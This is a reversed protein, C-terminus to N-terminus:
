FFEDATLLMVGITCLLNLVSIYILQLRLRRGLDVMELWKAVWETPLGLLLLSISTILVTGFLTSGSTYIPRRHPWGINLAVATWIFQMNVFLFMGTVLPAESILSGRGTSSRLSSRPIAPLVWYFIFLQFVVQIGAILLTPLMVNRDCISRPPRKRSFRQSADLRGMLVGLPLVLFLDVYLYQGDSVIGGVSYLLLVSTFQVVSYMFMYQFAALSAAASARGQRIVEFVGAISPAQSTFSASLCATEHSGPSRGEIKSQESNKRKPSKHSFVDGDVVVVEQLEKRKGINQAPNPIRSSIAVGTDAERLAGVDNAGDGCMLVNRRLQERVMRILNRKQDPSMRAYVVGRRLILDRLKEDKDLLELVDGTVVLLLPSTLHTGGSDLRFVEDRSYFSVHDSIRGGISVFEFMPGDGHVNDRKYEMQDEFGVTVARVQIVTTSYKRSLIGSSQAVSVATMAHDGTVVRIDFFESSETLVALTDPKLPNELIMLGLFTLGREIDSRSMSLATAGPDNKSQCAIERGAIALVRRGRSTHENVVEELNVPVTNPDSLKAIVEPAGKLYAVLSPGGTKLNQLAITGQRSLDSRFELIRIIKLTQQGDYVEFYAEIQEV